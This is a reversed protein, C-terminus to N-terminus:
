LFRLFYCMLSLFYIYVLILVLCNRPLIVANILLSFILFIYGNKISTFICISSAYILYFYMDSCVSHDSALHIRLFLLILVSTNSESLLVIPKECLTGLYIHQQKKKQARLFELPGDFIASLTNDSAKAYM